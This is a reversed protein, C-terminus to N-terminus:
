LREFALEEVLTYIAEPVAELRAEPIPEGSADSLGYTREAIKQLAREVRNLRALDRAVQVSDIELLALRQADDEYEASSGRKDFNVNNEETKLSETVDILSARLRTLYRTQKEIFKENLRWSGSNMLRRQSSQHPLTGSASNGDKPAALMLPEHLMVIQRAGEADIVVFNVLGILLNDVYMERPRHIRHLVDALWIEIVDGNPDYYLRHIPLRNVSLRRGMDLSLTEIDARKGILHRSAFSCFRGWESHELRRITM